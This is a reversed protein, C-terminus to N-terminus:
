PGKKSVAGLLHRWTGGARIGRVTRPTVGLRKAWVSSPITHTSDRIAEVQEPNLKCNTSRCGYRHLNRRAQRARNESPTVLDLNRLANNSADCDLHDIQMGKPIPGHAAEWVIRHAYWTQVPTSATARQIVRVYSDAARQGVEVGEMNFVRGSDLCALLGSPSHFALATDAREM